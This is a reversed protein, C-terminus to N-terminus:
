STEKKRHFTCQLNEPDEGVHLESHHHLLHRLLNDICCSQENLRADIHAPYEVGLVRMKIALLHGQFTGDVMPVLKVPLTTLVAKLAVTQANLVFRVEIEQDMSPVPIQEAM